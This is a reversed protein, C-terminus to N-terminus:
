KKNKEDYKFKIPIMTAVKVKKGDVEGPNWKTLKSVARMAEEDLLSNGSSREVEQSAVSGDKDIVVKIITRGEAGDAEKPYKLENSLEAMLDGKYTPQKTMSEKEDAHTINTSVTTLTVLLLASLIAVYLPSRNSNSQKKMRFRRKLNNFSYNNAISSYIISKTTPSMIELDSNNLESDVEFEHTLKLEKQMLYIFPNFWFVISFINYIIMDITHRKEIHVLEHEIVQLKEIQNLDCNIVIKNLFSLNNNVESEYIDINGISKVKNSNNILKNLQIIGFLKYLLAISFGIIYIINQYNTNQYIPDTSNVKSSTITSIEQIPITYFGYDFSIISAFVILVPTIIYIFRKAYFYNTNDLTLRFLGYIVSSLLLFKMIVIINM